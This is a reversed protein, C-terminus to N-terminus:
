WLSYSALSPSAVRPAGLAVARSPRRALPRCHCGGACGCVSARVRRRRRACWALVPCGLLRQLFARAGGGVRGCWRESGGGPRAGGGVWAAGRGWALAVGRPGRCSSVAVPTPARLGGGGGGGTRREALWFVVRGDGCTSIGRELGAGREITEAPVGGASGGCDSAAPDPSSELLFTRFGYVMVLDRSLQVSCSCSLNRSARCSYACRLGRPKAIRRPKMSKVGM